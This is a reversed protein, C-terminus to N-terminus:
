ALGAAQKFLHRAVASSDVAWADDGIRITRGWRAITVDGLVVGDARDLARYAGTPTGVRRLTDVVDDLSSYSMPRGRRAPPGPELERRDTM